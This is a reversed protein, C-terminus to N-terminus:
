LTVKPPEAVPTAVNVTAEPKIVKARPPTVADAVGVKDVTPVIGSTM